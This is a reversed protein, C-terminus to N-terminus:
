LGESEKLQRFKDPDERYLTIREGDTMESLKKAAGGGNSPAAGGGGAKSGRLLADYRGSAQFEKKLDEVTSVTPNGAADLVQVKGDDYRIRGKIFESLLEANTGDALEAALKMAASDTKEQAISKRVEELEQLASSRASESSEYLSKYDNEEKARQEAEQKARQEAERAKQKASKSENLLEEVKQKLGSTDEPEPIGEVKLQYGDGKAEYLAQQTEDLAEHDEKSISYKLSM